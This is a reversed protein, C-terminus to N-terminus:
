NDNLDAITQCVYCRKTSAQQDKGSGSTHQLQPQILCLSAPTPRLQLPLCMTIRRPPHPQITTLGDSPPPLVLAMTTPSDVPFLTGPRSGERTHAVERPLESELAPIRKGHEQIILMWVVIPYM